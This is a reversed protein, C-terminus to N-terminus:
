NTIAHHHKKLYVMLLQITAPTIGSIRHAQALHSPQIANLKEIAETSLGPISAYDFDRPLPTKAWQKLRAIDQDQRKIYGAYHYSADIEAEWFPPLTDHGIDRWQIEPRTILESLKIAEQIKGTKAEVRKALDSHPQCVTHALYDHAKRLAQQKTDFWKKRAENILGYQSALAHLRTDANDERLRLRYEARSTFMRYPEQTGCTILDDILVGIYAQERGLVFPAEERHKLVANIGAMIGQAAAEEYGTTGNIQGAFFLHSLHKTELTAHLGTPNFFDYEIAYGPRTIHANELGEMSRIMQCQVDFPLSTSLGNPYYEHVHCGEPELFVTHADRDAFRECKKEISPCYRPEYGTINATKMASRHLNEQILQHTIPNTHTMYCPIQPLPTFTQPLSSLSPPPTLGEQLTIRSFDISCGAIRPPTGTKLRGTTFGLDRMRSALDHASPDGARGGTHTSQGVFIRGTLFTGVTLVTTHARITLGLRTIVGHCQGNEVCLDQVTDQLLYLNKCQDLYQRIVQRYRQRDAQIRTARVAPGKSENLVRVHLAAQDAAAAMLGGLADVERVLHSKGIGGIAPNCSLQGLTDLNQTLLLTKAGMRAAAAAAETGAHGGGVVIVDYEVHNMRKIKILSSM